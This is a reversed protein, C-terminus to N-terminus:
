VQRDRRAHAAVRARDRRREIRAHRSRRLRQVIAFLGKQLGSSHPLSPSRQPDHYLVFLKVDAAARPSRARAVGLVAYAPEVVRHRARGRRARDDAASRAAAASAHLPGATGDSATAHLKRSSSRKSRLFTTTTANARHLTRSEDTGDGNIPYVAVRLPIDWDTSYVRDFYTNLAVFLLILLLILIRLRRWMHPLSCAVPSARCDSAADAPRKSAHPGRTRRGRRQVVRDDAPLLGSCDEIYTQSEVSLDLLLTITEGCYPCIVEATTELM